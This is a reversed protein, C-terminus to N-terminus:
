LLGLRQMRRKLAHRSIGLAEAAKGKQGSAARLAQMVIDRETRSLQFEITSGPVGGAGGIEPPLHRPEIEAGPHLITLREILNSLERINGPWAHSLFADEVPASFSIPACGEAKAASTAFHRALPMIDTAHEALPPLTLPVVNLRYFLDARFRSAAVEAALDRNTAAIVRIDALQERTSGLRRYRRSELFGLLKAQLGPAMEAIEDLFLTGGEAAEVLGPRASHAGTFAGREVGFLEAELLDGPLAACNVIIFPRAARASRAHIFRATFGKGSGSPGLLLIVRAASRAIIGSTERVDRFTEPLDSPGAGPDDGTSAAPAVAGSASAERLVTVFDDLDFPKALFDVAGRRVAEVATPIDGHASIMIIRTQRNLARIPAILDVGLGDPLRQDLVV